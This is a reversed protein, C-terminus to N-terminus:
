EHTNDERRLIYEFIKRVGRMYRKDWKNILSQEEKTLGEYWERYESDDLQDSYDWERILEEKREETM